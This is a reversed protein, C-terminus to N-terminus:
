GPRKQMARTLRRLVEMQDSVPQAEAPQRDFDPMFDTIKYPPTGQRRHVNALTQAIIAAQLDRRRDGFPELQEFARWETL